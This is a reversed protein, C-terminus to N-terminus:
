LSGASVHPARKGALPGITGHQLNGDGGEGQVTMPVPVAGVGKEELPCDQLAPFLCIKSYDNM